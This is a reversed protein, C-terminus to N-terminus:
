DDRMVGLWTNYADKLDEDQSASYSNILKNYSGGPNCAINLRAALAAGNLRSELLESRLAIEALAAILECHQHPPIVLASALALDIFDQDDRFKELSGSILEVVRPMASKQDKDSGWLLKKSLFYLEKYQQKKM